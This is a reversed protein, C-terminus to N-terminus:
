KGSKLLKNVIANWLRSCEQAAPSLPDSEIVTLGVGTAEIVSHRATLEHDWVRGGIGRLAERADGVLPSEQGQRIPPAVSLVMVSRRGEFARVWDRGVLIDFASPRALVIALDSMAAVRSVCGNRGPANDVLVLDFDGKRARQVLREVENPRGSQVAITDDDRLARWASASGQPDVDLIIVRHGLHAAIGAFQLCATSKGCGGKGWMSLVFPGREGTPPLVRPAVEPALNIDHYGALSRAPPNSLTNPHSM